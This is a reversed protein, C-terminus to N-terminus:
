TRGFRRDLDKLTLRLSTPRGHPCSSSREVSERKALLTALEEESLRDGAKVAAKCAMMDVLEHLAAELANSAGTEFAGAEAKELVAEMFGVPDVGREFLLSPFALVGVTAPGTPEVEIGLRDLLPGLEDLLGQRTADARVTAPMLLRQSELRGGGTIRGWLEEFMVREHLAHQDVILLGEDDETVVYSSQVQLISRSQLGGGSHVGAGPFAGGPFEGPDVGGTGAAEGNAHEYPHPPHEGGLSNLGSHDAAPDSALAERVEQFAFGKQRPDMRKFYDVFAQTNGIPGAIAAHGEASGDGPGGGGGPEPAPRVADRMPWRSEVSPTLDEGLLRRRISSLVLGHVSSPERFRVEAKAPHVNVDVERPDLELFVVAVPFRDPPILGRYAEKVAHQLSRDKVPRGNVCLYLGKNNGRALVPMGALGWVGKGRGEGDSVQGDFELLGEEVEAGLVDVCRKRRDAADLRMTERGNNVLTFGVGPHVIALRRLTDHIHGLETAPARMFKRRAPTNFFLDRMSVVTGPACGVPVPGSVEGGEVRLEHGSASAAAAPVDDGGPGASGGPRSRLTLRSVSAISALAEGRFGLTAIAELQEPERLKSTAHSAVALPLDSASMGGGDDAVEILQRGGEEVSVKVRRAGADLSNEVLEKVVSAPREIVEGAAIQNILLAPLRAISM